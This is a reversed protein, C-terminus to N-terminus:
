MDQWGGLRQQEEKAALASVEALEAEARQASRVQKLVELAEGFRTKSALWRPSEPMVLMGFWLMVAPITAIVLMWRWIGGSESGVNAIIANSTFAILQGSVVM